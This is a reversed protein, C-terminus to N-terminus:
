ILEWKELILCLTSCHFCAWGSARGPPPHTIGLAINLRAEGSGASKMPLASMFCLVFHYFTSNLPGGASHFCVVESVRAAREISRGRERPPDNVKLMQSVIQWASHILNLGGAHFVFCAGSSFM